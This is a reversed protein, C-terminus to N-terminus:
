NVFREGFLPPKSYLPVLSGDKICRRGKWEEMVKGVVIQKARERRRSRPKPWFVHRERLGREIEARLVWWTMKDVTGEGIGDWQALNALLIGNGYSVLCKLTLLLQKELTIQPHHSNANFCRLPQLISVLLTSTDPFMRAQQRFLDPRHY